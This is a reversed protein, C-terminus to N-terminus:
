IVGKTMLEMVLMAQDTILKQNEFQTEALQMMLLASDERLQEIPEKPIPQNKIINIEEDSLGEVWETGTWKPTYLGQPPDITVINEGDPIYDEPVILDELFLGTNTDIKIVKKM